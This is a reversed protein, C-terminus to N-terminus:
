WVIDTYNKGIARWRGDWRGARPMQTQLVSLSSVLVLEAFSCSTAKSMNLHCFSHPAESMSKPVQLTVYARLTHLSTLRHKGNGSDGVNNLLVSQSDRWKGKTVAIPFSHQDNFTLM